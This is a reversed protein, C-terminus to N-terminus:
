KKSKEKSVNEKTLFETAIKQSEEEHNEYENVFGTDHFWAALLLVEMDDENLESHKGIEEAVMAVRETHAYDHYTLDKALKEKLLAEVYKQAKAVIKLEESM